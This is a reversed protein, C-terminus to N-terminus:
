GEGRVPGRLSFDRALRAMRAFATLNFPSGAAESSAKFEAWGRAGPALSLLRGQLLGRARGRGGQRRAPRPRVRPGAGRLGRTPPREPRGPGWGPAGAAALLRRRWCGGGGVHWGREAV